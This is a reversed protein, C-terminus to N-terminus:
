WHTCCETHPLQDPVLRCQSGGSISLVSMQLTLSITQNADATHRASATADRSGCCGQIPLVQDMVAQRAEGCTFSNCVIMWFRLLSMRCCVVANACCCTNGSTMDSASLASCVEHERAM